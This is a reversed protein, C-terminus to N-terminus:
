NLVDAAVYCVCKGPKIRPGASKVMPMVKIEILSNYVQYMDALSPQMCM